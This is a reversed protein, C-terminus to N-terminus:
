SLSKTIMKHQMINCNMKTQKDHYVHQAKCHTIVATWDTYEDPSCSANDTFTFHNNGYALSYQYANPRSSGWRRASVRRGHTTFQYSPQYYNNSSYSCSQLSVFSIMSSISRSASRRMRPTFSEFRSPKRLLIETNNRCYTLVGDNLGSAALYRLTM